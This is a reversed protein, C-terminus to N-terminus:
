TDEKREGYSCFDEAKRWAPTDAEIRRCYSGINIGVSLPVCEDSERTRITGDNMKIHPPMWYICNECRVVPDDDVFCADMADLIPDQDYVPFEMNLLQLHLKDADILRM